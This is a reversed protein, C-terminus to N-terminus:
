AQGNKVDALYIFQGVLYLFLNRIVCTIQAEQKGVIRFHKTSHWSWIEQKLELNGTECEVLLKHDSYFLIKFRVDYWINGLDTRGIPHQLAAIHCLLM